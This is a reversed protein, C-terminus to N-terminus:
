SADGSLSSRVRVFHELQKRLKPGKRPLEDALFRMDLLLKPKDAMVMEHFVKSAHFTEM